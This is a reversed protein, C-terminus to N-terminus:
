ELLGAKTLEKTWSRLASKAHQKKMMSLQESNQASLLNLGSNEMIDTVSPPLRIMDIIPAGRDELDKKVQSSEFLDFPREDRHNKVVIWKVPRPLSALEDRLAVLPPRTQDIVFVITIEAEIEDLILQLDFSNKSAESSTMKATVDSGRAPLDILVDGPAEAIVEFMEDLGDPKMVNICHVDAGSDKFALHLGPNKNDGDVLALPRGAQIMAAATRKAAETKGIGGKDGHVVFIRKM